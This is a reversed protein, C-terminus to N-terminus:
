NDTYNLDAIVKATLEYVTGRRETYGKMTSVLAPNNLHCNVL